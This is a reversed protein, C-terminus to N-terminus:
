SVQKYYKSICKVAQNGKDTVRFLQGRISRKRKTAQYYGANMGMPYYAEILGAKVLGQNLRHSYVRCTHTLESIASITFYYNERGYHYAGCLYSIQSDSMNYKKRLEAFLRKLQSVFFVNHTFTDFM